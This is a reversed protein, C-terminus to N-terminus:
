KILFSSHLQNYPTHLNYTNSTPEQILRVLGASLASGVTVSKWCLFEMCAVSSCWAVYPVVAALHPCTCAPVPSWSRGGGSVGVRWTCPSPRPEVYRAGALCVNSSNRSLVPCEQVDHLLYTQRTPWSNMIMNNVWWSYAPYSTNCSSARRSQAVRVIPPTM